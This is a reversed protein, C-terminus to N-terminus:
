GGRRGPRDPPALEDRIREDLVQEWDSDFLGRCRSLVDLAWARALMPLAESREIPAYTGDARLRGFWLTGAGVDYCWVEPVGLAAYVPLRWESRTTNDVEIALDPPPDIALNIDEQDGRLRDLSALYFSTDAERGSGEKEGRGPIWLSTSGANAYRLGFAKAVAVVLATLLNKNKEHVYKPSMLELTGNHYTMRIHPNADADRIMEYIARPVDCLFIRIPEVTSKASTKTVETTAM